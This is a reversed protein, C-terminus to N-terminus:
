RDNWWVPGVGKNGDVNWAAPILVWNKGSSWYMPAVHFYDGGWFIPGVHRWENHRGCLCVAAEVHKGDDSQYYIPWAGVGTSVGTAAATGMGGAALLLAATVTRLLKSLYKM